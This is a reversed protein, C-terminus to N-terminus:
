QMLTEMWKLIIHWASIYVLWCVSGAGAMKSVRTNQETARQLEEVGKNGRTNGKSKNLRTNVHFAQEHHSMLYISLWKREKPTTTHTLLIARGTSWCHIFLHSYVTGTHIRMYQVHIYPIIQSNKDTAKQPWWYSSPSYISIIYFFQSMHCDLHTSTDHTKYNVACSATETQQHCRSCPMQSTYQIKKTVM